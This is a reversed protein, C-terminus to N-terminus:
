LQAPTASSNTNGVHVYDDYPGNTEGSHLFIAKNTAHLDGRVFALVARGAIPDHPEADRALRADPAGM